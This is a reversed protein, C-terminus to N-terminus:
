DICCFIPWSAM